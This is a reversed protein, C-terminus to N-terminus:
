DREALELLRRTGESNVRLTEVQLRQYAPPSAPSALHFVREIPPPDPLLEVVDHEIFIFRPRDLLEAINARRGTSLNDLCVVARGDELLRRCLHSGVFGAGGSVVDVM